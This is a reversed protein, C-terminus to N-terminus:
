AASREEQQMFMSTLINVVRTSSKSTLMEAKLAPDVTGGFREATAAYAALHKRAHRIGSEAGLLALLELYHALAAALMTSMSHASSPQGALRKALDGVLWPQGLAARGIMVADAGSMELAMVADELSSIDGNVVLPITIAERVQRVAQWNAQGTYFQQRTRGHVTIMKTGLQEARNALEAANQSADDWGLRMKVTVPVSVANVTTEILKAAHDLDRMLASGAYGGIVRKAPCGMNIDIIDAGNQVAIKAAEAMWYADRGALQVMHPKAGADEARLRAELSGKVLEDSAVMESVVLPAGFQHAVRRFAVDTIGSMPALMTTGPIHINGVYFGTGRSDRNQVTKNTM